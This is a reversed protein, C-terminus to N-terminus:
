GGGAGPPLPRLAFTWRRGHCRPCPEVDFRAPEPLNPDHNSPDAWRVERIPWAVRVTGNGRCQPCDITGLRPAAESM